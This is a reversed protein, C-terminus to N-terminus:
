RNFKKRIEKIQNDLVQCEKEEFIKFEGKLALFEQLIKQNFNKKLFSDFEEFSETNIIKKDNFFNFFTKKSEKYYILRNEFYGINSFYPFEIKEMKCFAIKKFEQQLKKVEILLSSDIETFQKLYENFFLKQLKLQLMKKYNEKDNNSLVIKEIYFDINEIDFAFAVFSKITEKKIKDFDDFQKLEEIDKNFIKEEQKLAKLHDKRRFMERQYSEKESLLSKYAKYELHLNSGETLLKYQDYIQYYGEIANYANRKEKNFFRSLKSSKRIDLIDEQDKILKTPFLDKYINKLEKPYSNYQEILDLEKNKIEEIKLLAEEQEKKNIEIDFDGLFNQKEDIIRLQSKLVEYFQKIGISQLYIADEFVTEKNISYLLSSLLNKKDGDIKDLLLSSFHKGEREIESCISQMEILKDMRHTYENSM